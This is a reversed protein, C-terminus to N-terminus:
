CHATKHQVAAASQIIVSFCASNYIVITELVSVSVGPETNRDHKSSIHHKGDM